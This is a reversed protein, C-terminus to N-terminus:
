ESLDWTCPISGRTTGCSFSWKQWRSLKETARVSDTSEAAYGSGAGPVPHYRGPSGASKVWPIAVSYTPSPSPALVAGARCPSIRLPNTQVVNPDPSKTRAPRRAKSKQEKAWVWSIVVVSRIDVDTTSIPRPGGRCRVPRGDVGFRHNGVESGKDPRNPRPPTGTDTERCSEMRRPISGLCAMSGGLRWRDNDPKVNGPAPRSFTTTGNRTREKGHGPIPQDVKRTQDPVLFLFCVLPRSLPSCLTKAVRVGICAGDLGLLMSAHAAAARSPSAELSIGLKYPSASCTGGGSNIDRSLPPPARITMSPDTM